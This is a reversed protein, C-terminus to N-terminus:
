EARELHEALQLVTITGPDEIDALIEGLYIPRGFADELAIALEAFKLSDVGLDEVLSASPQLDEVSLEPKVKRLAQQVKQVAPSSGNTTEPRAKRTRRVNM